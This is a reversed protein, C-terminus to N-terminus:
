IQLWKITMQASKLSTQALKPSIKHRGAFVEAVSAHYIAILGEGGAALAAHGLSLMKGHPRFAVNTWSFSPAEVVGKAEGKAAPSVLPPKEPEYPLCGPKM